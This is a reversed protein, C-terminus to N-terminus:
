QGASTEEAGWTEPETDPITLCVVAGGGSRASFRVGAAKKYLIQLRAHVNRMGINHTASIVDNGDSDVYEKLLLNVKEVDEPTLPLGTNSVRIVIEGNERRCEIWIHGKENDQELGHAVANEVIPQLIMKPIVANQVAEEEAFSIEVREHYRAKIIRCYNQVSELEDHLRTYKESGLSYRMIAAMSVVIESIEPERHAAAIGYICNLTNFLFHPNIQIQLAILESRQKEVKARYIIKTAEVLEASAKELEDLMDNIGNSIDMLENHAQISLRMGSERRASYTKMFDTIVAVPGTLNRIIIRAMVFVFLLFAALVIMATKAATQYQDSKTYDMSYGLICWDSDPLECRVACETRYQGSKAPRENGVVLNGEHDVIRYSGSPDLKSVFGKIQEMNYVVITYYQNGAASSLSRLLYLYEKTDSDARQYSIHARNTGPNEELYRKAAYLSSYEGSDIGLVLNGFDTVVVNAASENCALVISLLDNVNNAGSTINVLDNTKSLRLMLGNYAVLEAISEIETQYSTIESSLIEAAQEVSRDLQQQNTYGLGILFAAAIACVLFSAAASLRLIQGRLSMRKNEARRKM